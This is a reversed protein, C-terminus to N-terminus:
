LTAASTDLTPQGSPKLTASASLKDGSPASPEFGTVYADFTWITGDPFTLQYGVLTRDKMDKIMQQHSAGGPVFNLELSVTGSRLVTVIVEEWGGPSSHNTVDATDASLQLGGINVVEAITNWAALNERALITGMGAIANAM